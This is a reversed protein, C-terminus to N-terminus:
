GNENEIEEVLRSRSCELHRRLTDQALQSNRATIADRIAKHEEIRAKRIRNESAIVRKM